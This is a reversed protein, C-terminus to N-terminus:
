VIFVNSITLNKIDIWFIYKDSCTLCDIKLLEDLSLETHPDNYGDHSCLLDQRIDDYFVDIEVGKFNLKIAENVSKISNEEEKIKNYGRHALIKKITIPKKIVNNFM